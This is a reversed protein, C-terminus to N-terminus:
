ECVEEYHACFEKAHSHPAGTARTNCMAGDVMTLAAGESCSPGTQEGSPTHARDRDHWLCSRTM